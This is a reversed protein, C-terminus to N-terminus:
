YRFRQNLKKKNNNNNNNNNNGNNNQYKKLGCSIYKGIPDCSKQTSITTALIQINSKLINKSTAETWM